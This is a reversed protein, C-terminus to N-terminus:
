SPKSWFTKLENNTPWNKPRPVSDAARYVTNNENIIFMYKGSEGPEAPYALFAFKKLHHVKGSNKDTEQGYAEPPNVSNDMELAVFYYGDMPIPMPVLPILPRADAEAVKREVLRIESGTGSPKMSHLGAVDGTWFDNLGNGDRDNARFDAEASAIMKLSTFASGENVARRERKREQLWWFLSGVGILSVMLITIV